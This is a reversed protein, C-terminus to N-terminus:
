AAKAGTRVTFTVTEGDVSPAVTSLEPFRNRMATTIEEVTGTVVSNINGASYVVRYQAAKAGTRVTFTVTEGDVTPSVTALEPFRNRMATTIEEISGTVVSNINGASYVVRYQSM